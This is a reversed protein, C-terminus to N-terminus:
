YMSSHASILFVGALQNLVPRFDEPKEIDYIHKCVLGCEESYERLFRSPNDTSPIKVVGCGTQNEHNAYKEERNQFDITSLIHWEEQLRDWYKKFRRNDDDLQEFQQYQTKINKRLLQSLNCKEESGYEYWISKRDYVDSNSVECTEVPGPPGNQNSVQNSVQAKQNSVQPRQGSIQVQQNSVQAVQMSVQEVQNSVQEVQMSVQAVQNSVQPVQNSVQPVQNSVQPFSEQSVWSGGQENVTMARRQRAAALTTALAFIKM